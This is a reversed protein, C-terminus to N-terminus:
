WSGKDRGDEKKFSNEIHGMRLTKISNTVIDSRNKINENKPRLAYPIKAGRGPISGAGEANSPSTMVVPCGPFDRQWRKLICIKFLPM